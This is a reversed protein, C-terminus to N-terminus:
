EDAKPAKRVKLGKVTKRIRKAQKELQAALDLLGRKTDANITGHRPQQHVLAWTVLDDWSATRRRTESSVEGDGIFFGLDIGDASIHASAVLPIQTPLVRIPMDIGQDMEDPSLPAATM